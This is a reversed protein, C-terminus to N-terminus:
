WDKAHRVGLFESGMYARTFPAFLMHSLRTFPILALMLLGSVIHIVLMTQYAFLQHYCIFGTVFPLAAIVLVLWDMPRTVFAVERKTLRRWAFFCCSLVVAVTLTDAVHDPMVWWTVGFYKEWLVVHGSLFVPVAFLCLHFIITVINVAPRSRWGLSRLPVMWNLISTLGNKWNMYYISSADKKRALNYMSVLRYISGFVLVGWAVWALPGTIFEYISHM